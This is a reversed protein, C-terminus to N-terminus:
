LGERMETSYVSGEKPEFRIELYIIQTPDIDTEYVEKVLYYFASSDVKDPPGLEEIVESRTLGRLAAGTILDDLMNYRVDTM